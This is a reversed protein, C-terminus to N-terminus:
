FYFYYDLFANGTIGSPEPSPEPEPTPEPEPSSPEPEPSPEPVTTPQQIEPESGGNYDSPPAGNNDYDGPSGPGEGLGQQPGTDPVEGCVCQNNVCDTYAGEPCQSSCDNCGAMCKSRTEEDYLKKCEDRCSNIEPGDFDVIVCEGDDYKCEFEKTPPPCMAVVAMDYPVGEDGCPLCELNGDIFEDNFNNDVIEEELLDGEEGEAFVFGSFLVLILVLSILKKLKFVGM